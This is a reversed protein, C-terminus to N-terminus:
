AVDHACRFGVTDSRSLGAALVILKASWEAARPGGDFYWEADRNAFDSGGKVITFRTRGNSHESETLNWVLPTRRQLQGAQHALQWEDESPLRAGRWRAYARADDLDVNCVPQDRQEPTPGTPGWHALFREPRQPAYGSAALFTAYEHNSVEYRDIAFPTVDVRRLAEAERHLVAGLPPKWEHVFPTEGYLGCERVRYRVSLDHRGGPVLAMSTPVQSSVVRDASRRVAPRLVPAIDRTALAATAWGPEPTTTPRQASVFVAAVAGAALPGGVSVWGADSADLRLPLDSTLESWHAMPPAACRLWPGDIAEGRNVITWLTGAEREWRSAYVRIDGGPHDALPTWTGHRFWEGHSVQVRRMRAMVARDRANWGVWSGFVDDWVLVGSGNLWASHLAELQDLHWRRTHHLMHAPEFWRSRLVGPVPSDAFYQAWSVQHDVIRELPVRSEGGISLALGRATLAALLTPAGATATDLFLGDAGLWALADAIEDDSHAAAGSAWPYYSAYVRVGRAQFARVVQPLEPIARLFDLQRRADIGLVPYAHWLLVGDVGGHSREAAALYADVDFRGRAHDFLAEDWLQLFALAFPPTPHDHYSAGDYGLRQRAEHRWRTLQARWAPWDRPDDPAAFIKADDLPRLDANPDLPVPTPRDLPRPALPRTM